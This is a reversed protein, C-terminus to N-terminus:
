LRAPVSEGLGTSALTAVEITQAAGDRQVNNTGCACGWRLAARTRNSKSGTRNSNGSGNNDSGSLWSFLFGAIFSDGAGTADRAAAAPVVHGRERHLKGEKDVALAGHPGLTVVVLGVGKEVFWRAAEAAGDVVDDAIAGSPASAVGSICAAEVENQLIPRAHTM